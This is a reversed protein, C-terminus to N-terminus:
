QPPNDAPLEKAAQLTKALTEHFAELGTVPVIISNSYRGGEEIIRVFRGRPNEKLLFVYSRREVQVHETHLTREEM